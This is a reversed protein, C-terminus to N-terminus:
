CSESFRLGDSVLFLHTKLFRRSAQWQSECAPDSIHLGWPSEQCTNDVPRGLRLYREFINLDRERPETSKAVRLTGM